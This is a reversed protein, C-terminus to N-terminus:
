IEVLIVSHCKPCVLSLFAQLFISFPTRVKRVYKEKTDQFVFASEWLAPAMALARQTLANNKQFMVNLDKGAMGASVTAKRM